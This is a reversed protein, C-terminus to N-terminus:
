MPKQSFRWNKASFRCNKASFRWNKASFRWKKASFRWNKASLRLFITIMVDVGPCKIVIQIKLLFHCNKNFLLRAFKLFFASTVGGGL